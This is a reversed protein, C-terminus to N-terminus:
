VLRHFHIVLVRPLKFNIQNYTNFIVYYLLACLKRTSEEIRQFKPMTNKSTSNKYACSVGKLINLNSM